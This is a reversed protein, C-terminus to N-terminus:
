DGTEFMVTEDAFQMGNSADIYKVAFYASVLAPLPIDDVDPLAIRLDVCGTDNLTFFEM